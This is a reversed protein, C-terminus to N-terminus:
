CVRRGRITDVNLHPLDRGSRHRLRGIRRRAFRSRLGISLDAALAAAFAAAAAAAALAATAFIAARRHVGQRQRGVEFARQRAVHVPRRRGFGAFDERM